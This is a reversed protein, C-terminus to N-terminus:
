SGLIPGIKFLTKRVNPRVGLWREFQLAAQAVLMGIGDARYLARNDAAWGLFAQAAYGYSLDYCFTLRGMISMSLGPFKGQYGLATAHIVLDLPENYEHDFAVVEMRAQHEATQKAVLKKANDASRNAIYIKAPNEALLNPLVGAAAGGAGLLLIRANQLPVSLRQQLDWVLGLGDTNDACLEDNKNWWLTNAAGAQEVAATRHVALEAAQQKFPLTVSAGMGGQEHFAHIAAVFGDVGPDHKTYQIELDFENAFAQHIAPSLSHKVPSGVVMFKKKM